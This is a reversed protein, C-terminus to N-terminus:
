FQSKSGDGITSQAAEVKSEMQRTEKFVAKKTDMSQDKPKVMPRDSWGVVWTLISNKQGDVFRTSQGEREQIPVRNEDTAGGQEKKSRNKSGSAWQSSRLRRVM